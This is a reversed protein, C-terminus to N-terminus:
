STALAAGVCHWRCAVAGMGGGAEGKGGGGVVFVCGLGLVARVRRCLFQCCLLIASRGCSRVEALLEDFVMKVHTPKEEKIRGFATVVKPAEAVPAAAGAPADEMTAGGAEAGGAEAGVSSSPGPASAAAPEASPTGAAAESAAAAPVPAAPAEGDVSTDMAGDAAVPATSAPALAAEGKGRSKSRSRSGSHSGSHSRTRKRSSRGNTKRDETSAAAAALAQAVDYETLSTVFADYTTSSTIKLDASEM